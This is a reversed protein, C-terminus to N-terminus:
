GDKRCLSYFLLGKRSKAYQGRASITWIDHFKPHSGNSKLHVKKGRITWTGEVIKQKGPVSFDQYYFTSDPRIILRIQAPDAASVGYIGVCAPVQKQALASMFTLTLCATLMSISKRM